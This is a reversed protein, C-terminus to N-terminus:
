KVKGARDDGIAAGLNQSLSKIAEAINRRDERGIREYEAKRESDGAQEAQDALEAAALCRQAWKILDANGDLDFDDAKPELLLVQNRVSLGRYLDHRDEITLRRPTLVFRLRNKPLAELETKTDEATTFVVASETERFVDMKWVSRLLAKAKTKTQDITLSRFEVKADANEERDFYYRGDAVHFHSAYKQFALLTQEFENIDVGPLVVHRILEERTAGRNRGDGTLTYLMTASALPESLLSQQQMEEMNAKARNILDGTPDLDQLRIATERDSLTANGATILDAKNHTIRVLNALFGLSGRINQFGGRAPVRELILTLLDPHFPYSELLRTRTAQADFTPLHRRWTNLCSDITSSATTPDFGIYNQFIRHLVVRARDASTSRAFQVRVSPVRILTTGPEQGVDYISAFITVQPSRNGLESLMQLFGINQRQIAQDHIMRIGMELEDLILVLHRDGLAEQIQAESPYVEYKGHIKLDAQTFIFDWIRLLPQDTYKHTVVITNQPPALSLGHQKLWPAAEKPNQLLHYILVLLHSKGSGKLGEFLFLAPTDGKKKFRTNLRDLVRKIESTPYTLALFADPKAELKRRRTTKLNALDVIGDIGEDSLVEPRPTVFDSYSM